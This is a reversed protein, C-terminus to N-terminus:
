YKHVDHQILSCVRSSKKYQNYYLEYYLLIIVALQREKTQEDTEGQEM